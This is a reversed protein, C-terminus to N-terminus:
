SAEVIHAYPRRYYRCSSHHMRQFILDVGKAYGNTLTHAVTFGIRHNFALAKTNHAPTVGVLWDVIEFPYRFIERLFGKTVYRPDPILSHVYVMGGPRAKDNNSWGDMLIRATGNILGSVNSHPHYHLQMCADAIELGNMARTTM